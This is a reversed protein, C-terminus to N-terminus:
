DTRTSSPCDAVPWTFSVNTMTDHTVMLFCGLLALGVLAYSVPHIRFASFVSARDFEVAGATLILLLLPLLFRTEVAGPLIALAPLALVLLFLLRRRRSPGASVALLALLVATFSALGALHRKASPKTVFVLGDRVDLGNLLHRAYLASFAVPHTLVARAYDPITSLAGRECIEKLLEQGATDVYFVSPRPSEPSISTEYRQVVIGWRLQDVFLSKTRSATPNASAIGHEASNRWVQPATVLASALAFAALLHMRARWHWLAIVAVLIAPYLYITRTNYAGAAAAGAVMAFAVAKMGVSDSSRLMGWVCLWLLTCAPLDSLPYLLLGPYILSVLGVVVLRSRLKVAANAIRGYTDPLLVALAAAYAGSSLVRFATLPELGVWAGATVASRLVLPFLYGRFLWDKPLLDPDVALRWYIGSDFPFSTVDHRFQLSLIWACGLVFALSRDAAAGGWWLANGRSSVGFTTM